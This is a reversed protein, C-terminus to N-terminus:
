HLPIYFVKTGSLTSDTSRTTSNQRATSHLRPRHRWATDTQGGTRRDTQWTRSNQWFSYVYRSFIIVTPYGCRELKETSSTMAINRRSRSRQTFTAPPIPLFRSQWGIDPEMAHQSRNPWWTCYVWSCRCNSLVIAPLRRLKNLAPSSSSTYTHCSAEVNRRLCCRLM